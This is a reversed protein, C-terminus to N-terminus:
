AELLTASRNTSPSRIILDAAKEAIAMVPANTNGRVINPMISADVIRLGQLGHVRLETDVVADPDQGMRCTGVPHYLTECHNRLYDAIEDDSQLRRDPICPEGRFPSLAEQQLIKEALRYGRIMTQLDREDAFYNPDIFPKDAPTASRLTITGRSYPAILTPGFSFGMGSPNDFGHRAYFAPAFHFQIDPAPLGQQTRVFGGAEAVNSTFPGKRQLLYRLLEPVLRPLRDLGDLTKIAKARYMLGGMLHDQLNKGVGPLVRQVAIGLGQLQGPDGIGSLMLLQPSNFAGACLLVERRAVAQYEVGRRQFVVGRTHGAKVVLRQVQAHTLVSLNKRHRIPHLFADAASWRNGNRITRQYYGFGEQEDGNFDRNRRYGAQVAAQLIKSSLPHPHIPDGVHLEGSNGHFDDQITANSESQRFYPLMDRYSWGSNGAAAWQDYDYRHGRIYIMANISSSGGLVKGRPQYMSRRGMHEQESSDYNWDMKSRFLKHFAAPTQVNIHRDSGGAELLLVRQRWDESLRNALVCGASGAGVIIYDYEM